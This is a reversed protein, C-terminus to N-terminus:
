PRTLVPEHAVAQMAEDREDSSLPTYANAIDLARPLLNADGPTCFAHV